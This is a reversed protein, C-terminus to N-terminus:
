YTVLVAGTGVSYALTVGGTSGSVCYAPGFATPEVRLDPVGDYDFDGVLVHNRGTTGIEVIRSPFLPSLPLTPVVLYRHILGDGLRLSLVSFETGTRPVVTYGIARLTDYDAETVPYRIGPNISRGLVPGPALRNNLDTFGDPPHHPVGLYHFLEHSTVSVLDLQFPGLGVPTVGTFWPVRPNLTVGTEPSARALAGIDGNVHVPVSYIGGVRSLVSRGAAEVAPRYSAPVAPDYAFSVSPTDRPELEIPPSLTPHM